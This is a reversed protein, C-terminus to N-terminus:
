QRAMLAASIRKLYGIVVLLLGGLTLSLVVGIGAGSNATTFAFLMGICAAVTGGGIFADGPLKRAKTKQTTM